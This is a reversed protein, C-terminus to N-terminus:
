GCTAGGGLRGSTEPGVSLQDPPSGARVPEARAHEAADVSDLARQSRSDAVAAPGPERFSPQRRGVRDQHRRLRGSVPPSTARSSRRQRQVQVRRRSTSRRLWREGPQWGPIRARPVPVLTSRARRSRPSPHRVQPHNPDPPRPGRNPPHGPQHAPHRQQRACGPRCDATGTRRRRRLDRPPRRRGPPQGLGRHRVRGRTPCTRPDRSRSRSQRSLAMPAPPQMTPPPDLSRPQRPPNRSLQCLGQRRRRERCSRPLRSSRSAPRTTTRMSQSASWRVLMAWCGTPVRRHARRTRPALPCAPLGLM